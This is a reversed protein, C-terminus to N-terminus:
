VVVHLRVVVFDVHQEAAGAGVFPEHLHRVAHKLARRLEIADFDGELARDPLQSARQDRAAGADRSVAHEVVLISGRTAPPSAAAAATVEL